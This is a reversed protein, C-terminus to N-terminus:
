GPGGRPQDRQGANAGLGGALQQRARAVVGVPEAGFRGEGLEALGGRDRGGGAAGVAVAEVAAAVACGVVGQVGDHQDAHLVVLAGLLVDGSAGGFAHGLATM